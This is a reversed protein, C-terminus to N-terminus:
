IFVTVPKISNERVRGIAIFEDDFYLRVLEDERQFDIEGILNHELLENGSKIIRESELNVDYRRYATLAIDMPLLIESIKGQEAYDRVESLKHAQAITFDGTKVRNLGSMVAGCSLSEGIDNVLTRIYTGKSCDVKIKAEIPLNEGLRQIDHITIDRKECEVVKGKRAYDYLHRGDVKIASYMPPLQKQQGIYSKIVEDYQVESFDFEGNEELEGWIDQTDSRLGFRLEAIYSKDDLTMYQALRTAKGVLIILVGTAMPDLTGTHGTKEHLIKKMKFCVDHSTMNQEKDVIILGNMSM